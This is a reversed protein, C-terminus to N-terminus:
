RLRATKLSVNINKIQDKLNQDARFKNYIAKVVAKKDNCSITQSQPESEVANVMVTSHAGRVGSLVTLWLLGLASFLVVGSVVIRRSM